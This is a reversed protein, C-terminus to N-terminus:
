TSEITSVVWENYKDSLKKDTVFLVAEGQLWQSVRIRGPDAISDLRAQLWKRVASHAESTDPTKGLKLAMVDALIHDLSVTTRKGGHYIHYRNLM